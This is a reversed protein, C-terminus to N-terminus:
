LFIFSIIVVDTPEESLGSDPPIARSIMARRDPFKTTNTTVIYLTGNCLYLQDLITFGFVQTQGPHTTEKTVSLLRPEDLVGQLRYQFSLSSRAGGSIWPSYLVLGLLCAVGTAVFLLQQVRRRSQWM